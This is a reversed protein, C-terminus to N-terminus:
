NNILYVLIFVIPVVILTTLITNRNIKNGMTERVKGFILLIACVFMLGVIFYSFLNQDLIYNGNPLKTASTSFLLLALVLIGFMPGWFFWDIQKKKM